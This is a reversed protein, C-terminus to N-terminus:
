AVIVIVIEILMVILIAIGIVKVTAIVLPHAIFFRPKSNKNPEYRLKKPDKVNKHRGWM